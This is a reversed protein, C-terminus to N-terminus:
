QNIYVCSPVTGHYYMYSVYLIYLVRMYLHQAADGRARTLLLRARVFQQNEWELKVAALWIQESKPNASFAEMLIARAGPVNKALWKEKAAMLWLVEAHPCHKVGEKLKEELSEASGYDKELLAAQQWLMRKQPFQELAYALIARATEKMAPTKSLCTDADDMWTKQRDELDVGLHITNRVIAACTLPADAM